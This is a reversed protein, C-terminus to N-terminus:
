IKVGYVLIRSGIQIKNTAESAVFNITDLKSIRALYYYLELDSSYAATLTTINVVASRDTRQPIFGTIVTHMSCAPQTGTGIKNGGKGVGVFTTWNTTSSQFSPRHMGQISGNNLKLYITGSYDNPFQSIPSAIIELKAFQSLDIDSVDLDVQQVNATVIVDFLKVYPNAAVAVDIKQNDANMDEMLLPDDLM